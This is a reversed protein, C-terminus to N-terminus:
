YRVLISEPFIFPLYCTDENLSSPWQLELDPRDLLRLFIEVTHGETAEFEKHGFSGDKEGCLASGGWFGM